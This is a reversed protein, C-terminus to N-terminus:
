QSRLSKVPNVIAAKISQYSVTLWAILLAVSGALVFSGLGMEIRYAFGSLWVTMMWWAVPTALVFAIFVLKTFDKSLLILVSGVSAGMVKRIGIEKTRLSTTYASLGFLGVCAIIIALSSFVSFIKGSRQEESYNQHLNEDLFEYHFPREPALEKWKSEIKALTSQTNDSKLKVAIYNPNAYRGFVETNFMVLPTIEDHLSQFHFNKVIGIITFLRTNARASDGQFLDTNSLKRGIMEAFDDDVMMSKVTLVENSGQPQFMQGFVDNRNGVRSSTGTVSAVEPMKKIEERFAEGNKQLAWARDIMLVKEKNFGLDKKQIFNMQGGVVITSVILVISIMFQFVVLGNRLWSGKASGTFNGKMVTVPNFSSLVFAPYLGAFIGVLLVIAILGFIIEIGFVFPLNKEVLLNFSPLLLYAGLIALCTGILSLLM